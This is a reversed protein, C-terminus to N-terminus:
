RGRIRGQTVGKNTLNIPLCASVNGPIDELFGRARLSINVLRKIDLGLVNIHGATRTNAALPIVIMGFAHLIISDGNGGGVATTLNARGLIEILQKVQFLRLKHSLNLGLTLVKGLFALLGLQGLRSHSILFDKLGLLAHEM